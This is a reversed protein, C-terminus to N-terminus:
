NKYRWVYGGASSRNGSCCLSINGQHVGLEEYVKTASAWEKIFNGLRDFQLVPKNKKEIFRQTRTGYNNNYERTCWELNDVTNNTKDEDKHNIEPYNNPNSLFALAALRHVSILKKIGNKWLGVRLYGKRTKGPKLIRGTKKNRVRGLNSIEYNEYDKIEKWEESLLM